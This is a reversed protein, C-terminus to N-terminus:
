QGRIVSRLTSMRTGVTQTLAQYRLQTEAMLSMEEDVSVSNSDNRSSIVDRGMAQSGSNSGPLEPRGLHRGDTRLLSGGELGGAAAGSTLRNRLAAEFDVAKRTYGPTDINALNSAIAEQRRALGGLAARAVTFAQGGLINSLM